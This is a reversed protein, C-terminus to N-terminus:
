TVYNGRKGSRGAKEKDIGKCASDIAKREIRLYVKEFGARDRSNEWRERYMKAWLDMFDEYRGAEHLDEFFSSVLEIQEPSLPAPDELIAIIEDMTMTVEREISM